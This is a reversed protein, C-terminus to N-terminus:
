SYSITMTDKITYMLKGAQKREMLRHSQSHLPKNKGAKFAQHKRTIKLSKHMMVLIRFMPSSSGASSGATSLSTIGGEITM